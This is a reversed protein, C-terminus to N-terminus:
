ARERQKDTATLEALTGAAQRAYMSELAVTVWRPIPRDGRAWGMSTFRSIGFARAIAMHNLDLRQLHALYQKPTM